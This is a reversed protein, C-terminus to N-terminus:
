EHDLGTLLDNPKTETTAILVRVDVSFAFHVSSINQRVITAPFSPRDHHQGHNIKQGFTAQDRRHKPSETIIRDAEPIRLHSPATLYFAVAYNFTLPQRFDAIDTIIAVPQPM